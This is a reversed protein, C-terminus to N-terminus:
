YADGYEVEVDKPQWFIASRGTSDKGKYAKIVQKKHRLELVRPTVSNIPWGLHAAIMKNSAPYIEEIADLVLRQHKNVKPKVELYAAM